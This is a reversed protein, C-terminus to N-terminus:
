ITRPYGLRTLPVPNDIKYSKTLYDEIRRLIRLGTYVEDLKMTWGYDEAMDAIREPDPEGILRSNEEIIYHVKAAAVEGGRVEDVLRKLLRCEERRGEMIVEVIRRGDGTLHYIHIMTGTITAKVEEGLFSLATLRSLEQIVERSYPSRLGARFDPERSLPLRLVRAVLYALGQISRSGMEGGNVEVLLLILDGLKM